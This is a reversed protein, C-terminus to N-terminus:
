NSKLFLPMKVWSCSASSFSFSFLVVSSSAQQFFTLSCILCFFDLASFFLLNFSNNTLLGSSFFANFTLSLFPLGLISSSWSNNNFAIILNLGNLIAAQLCLLTHDYNSLLFTFRIFLKILIFNLAATTNNRVSYTILRHGYTIYLLM